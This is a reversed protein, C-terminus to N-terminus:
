VVNVFHTYNLLNSTHQFIGDKIIIPTFHVSRGSTEGSSDRSINRKEKEERHILNRYFLELKGEERLSPDFVFLLDFLIGPRLLDLNPCQNM